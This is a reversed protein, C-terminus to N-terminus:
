QRDYVILCYLYYYATFVKISLCREAAHPRTLRQHACATFSTIENCSLISEFNAKTRAVVISEADKTSHTVIFCNFYLRGFSFHNIFCVVPVIECQANNTRVTRFLFELTFSLFIVWFMMCGVSVDHFTCLSVFM